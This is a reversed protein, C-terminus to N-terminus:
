SVKAVTFWSSRLGLLYRFDDGSVTISGRSGTLRVTGVRGGWQGHGDRNGLTISTLDGISPWAREVDGDIVKATWSHNPNGSWGDYPDQEAPLYSFAGASTWGGNSSSFQTFAPAGQSTLIQGKTTQVAANSHPDEASYGGYVQCSSTDCIQYNGSLPHAREYAAYTRAAVAQARVADAHWLAPVEAPVVGLLYSDLGVINVTDGGVSRLAGRYAVKSGNPLVLTVPRAGASFRADGAFLRFRHWGSTRYDVESRGGALPKIRWRTAKPQAKALEWSKKKALSRVQLGSVPSVVVDSTTDGSILVKVQGGVTAWTTGPYYFDVIQRYGLGQRAAGEAGYQSMGHGHGYGHGHLVLTARHPITTSRAEAQQIPLLVVLLVVGLSGCLLLGPLRRLFSIM